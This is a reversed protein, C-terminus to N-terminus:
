ELSEAISRSQSGQVLAVVAVPHGKSIAPTVSVARYGPYALEARDVAAKLSTRSKSCAEMQSQAHALDYKGSIPQGLSEAATLGNQLSVKATPMLKAVATGSSESAYSGVSAATGMVGATLVAALTKTWM